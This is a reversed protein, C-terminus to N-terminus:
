IKFYKLFFLGIAYGIIAGVILDSFYHLGLYLRNYVVLLAIGISLYKFKPYKKLLLPLVSFVVAAHGSPFSFSSYQILSEIPRTRKFIEKLLLIIFSTSIASSAFTTIFNSRKKVFFSLFCGLILLVWLSVHADFWVMFRYLQLESPSLPYGVFPSILNGEFIDLYTKCALDQYCNESGVAKFPSLNVGISSDIRIDSLIPSNIELVLLSGVILFGLILLDRKKM